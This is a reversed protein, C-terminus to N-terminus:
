PIPPSSAKQEFSSRMIKDWITNAPAQSLLKQRLKLREKTSVQVLQQQPSFALGGIARLYDGLWKPPPVSASPIHWLRATGDATVTVIESGDSSASVSIVGETHPLGPFLATGTAPDYCNVENDQTSAALLARGGAIYRVCTVPGNLSLAPGVQEGTELSWIRATYDAGGTAILKGDPHYSISLVPNDHRIDHRTPSGTQPDWFRM